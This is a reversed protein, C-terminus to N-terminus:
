VQTMGGDVFLEIGTINRPDASALFAVAAAVEEDQGVRGLPITETGIDQVAKDLESQRRATVYVRAGEQAFRKATALGIGSTAGTVLAVNGKLRNSM